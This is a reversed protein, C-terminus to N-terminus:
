AAQSTKAAQGCATCWGGGIPLPVQCDDCHGRQYGGKALLSMADDESILSDAIGGCANFFEKGIKAKSGPHMRQGKGNVVKIFGHRRGSFGAWHQVVVVENNQLGFAQAVLTIKTAPRPMVTGKGNPTWDVWVM